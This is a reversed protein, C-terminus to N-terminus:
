VLVEMLTAITQLGHEKCLAEAAKPATRNDYYIRTTLDSRQPRTTRIAMLAIKDCESHSCMEPAQDDSPPIM